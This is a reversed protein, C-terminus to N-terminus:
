NSKILWVPEGFIQNFDFIMPKEAGIQNHNRDIIANFQIISLGAAFEPHPITRMEVIAELNLTTKGRRKILKQRICKKCEQGPKKHSNKGTYVLAYEPRFSQIKSESGQKLVKKEEISGFYLKVVEYWKQDDEFKGKFSAMIMPEGNQFRAQAGDRKALWVEFRHFKKPRSKDTDKFFLTSRTHKSKESLLISEEVNNKYFYLSKMELAYVDMSDPFGAPFYPGPADATRTRIDQRIDHVFYRTACSGHLLCLIILFKNSRLLSTIVSDM